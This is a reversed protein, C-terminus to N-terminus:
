FGTLLGLFLPRKQHLFVFGLIAGIHQCALIDLSGSTM